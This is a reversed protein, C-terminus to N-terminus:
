NRWIISAWSRCSMCLWDWLNETILQFIWTLHCCVMLACIPWALINEWELDTRQLHSKVTLAVSSRKTSALCLKKDIDTTIDLRCRPIAVNTVFMNNSGHWLIVVLKALCSSNIRKGGILLCKGAWIHFGAKTHALSGQEVRAWCCVELPRRHKQFSLAITAVEVWTWAM